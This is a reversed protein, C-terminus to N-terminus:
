VTVKAYFIPFSLFQLHLSSMMTMMFIDFSAIKKRMLPDNQDFILFKHILPASCSAARIKRHWCESTRM